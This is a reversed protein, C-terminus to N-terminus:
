AQTQALHLSFDAFLDASLRTQPGQMLMQLCDAHRWGPPIVGSIRQATM